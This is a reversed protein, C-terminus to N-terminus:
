GAAPRCILHTLAAVARYPDTSGAREEAALLADLDAPIPADRPALDSFVRVGYWRGVELGHGALRRTLEGLRDARATVGIRNRYRTEDFAALAGAWDGQLGPRMALGDGNRVLLSLVGGPALMGALGALLPDPDDFYMLVGHCLVVDFGGPEFLEGLREAQAQVTRVRMGPQIGAELLDLLERSADLATVQHGRAAMRLAQTGQGSGVDLVHCATAPLNEALQRTVLEQRVVDRLTGLGERWRSEAGSFRM